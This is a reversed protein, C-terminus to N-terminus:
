ISINNTKGLLNFVKPFQKILEGKYEEPVQDFIDSLMLRKSFFVHEGTMLNYEENAFIRKVYDFKLNLNIIMLNGGEFL